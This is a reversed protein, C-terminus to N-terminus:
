GDEGGELGAYMPDYVIPEKVERSLQPITQSLKM